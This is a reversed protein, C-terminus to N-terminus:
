GGLGLSQEIMEAARSAGGGAQISDRVQEAATRYSPNSRVRLVAARLAQPTLRTHAIAESDATM